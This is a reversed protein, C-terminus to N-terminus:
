IYIGTLSSGSDDQGLWEAYNDPCWLNVRDVAGIVLVSDHLGAKKLLWSPITIRGQSDVASM